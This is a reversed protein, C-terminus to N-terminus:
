FAPDELWEEDDFPIHSFNKVPPYEGDDLLGENACIELATSRGAKVRDRVELVSPRGTPEWMMCEMVLERLEKSYYQNWPKDFLEAGITYAGAYENRTFPAKWLSKDKDAPNM